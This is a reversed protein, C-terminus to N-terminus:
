DDRAEGALDPFSCTFVMMWTRRKVPLVGPATWMCSEPRVESNFRFFSPLVSQECCASVNVFDHFM